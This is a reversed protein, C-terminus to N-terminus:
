FRDIVAKVSNFAEPTEPETVVLSCTPLVGFVSHVEIGHYGLVNVLVALATSALRGEEQLDVRVQGLGETVRCVDTSPLLDLVRTVHEEDIMINLRKREPLVVLTGDSVEGAISPLCVRYERASPISLTAFGTDFTVNSESLLHFVNDLAVDPDPSYRRLASVVAEETTDWGQAQVLWRATKRVNLVGRALSENLAIDTQLYKEVAEVTTSM